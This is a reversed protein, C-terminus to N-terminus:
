LLTVEPFMAIERDKETLFVILMQQCHVRASCLQDVQFRMMSSIAEIYLM